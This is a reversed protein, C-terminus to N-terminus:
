HRRLPSSIVKFYAVLSDITNGERPVFVPTRHVHCPSHSVERCVAAAGFHDGHDNTMTPATRQEHRCPNSWTDHPVLCGMHLSAADPLSSRHLQSTLRLFCLGSIMLVKALDWIVRCQTRWFIIKRPHCRASSCFSEISAYSTQCLLLPSTNRPWFVSSRPMFRCADSLTGFNKRQRM